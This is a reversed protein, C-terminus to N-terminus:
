GTIPRIAGATHDRHRAAAGPVSYFWLIREFPDARHRALERFWIARTRLVKHLTAILGLVFASLLFMMAATAASNSTEQELLILDRPEPNAAM